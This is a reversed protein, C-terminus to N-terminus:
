VLHTEIRKNPGDIAGCLCSRQQESVSPGWFSLCFSFSAELSAGSVAQINKYKVAHEIQLHKAWPNTLCM